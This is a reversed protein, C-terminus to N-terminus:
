TARCVSRVDVVVVEEEEVVVMMRVDARSRSRGTPKKKFPAKAASEARSTRPRSGLLLWM